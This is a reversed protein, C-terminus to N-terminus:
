MERTCNAQRLSAVFSVAVDRELAGGTILEVGGLIPVLGAEPEWVM